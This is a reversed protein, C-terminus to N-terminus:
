SAHAAECHCRIPALVSQSLNMAHLRNIRQPGCQPCSGTSQIDWLDAFVRGKRLGMGYAVVEELSRLTPPSFESAAQLRDMIGNGARTPIVSCCPVGVDFAHVLSRKAWEMGEEESLWPPRLLIFARVDMGHKRLFEVARDFDALTMRKNLRPLVDPHVTELGMAIELRGRFLDRFRLCRPGVLRPHCEVIVREFPKLLAAIAHWDDPPIAQSDFFNGANYLKIAHTVPLQKLAMKLQAPIAGLPTREDTTYKWLDCMLCRFPCEKNALLVTAVERVIGDAQMEQEVFVGHARWVDVAPKPPRLALIEADTWPM